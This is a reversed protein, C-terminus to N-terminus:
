LANQPPAASCAQFPEASQGGGGILVEAVHRQGTAQLAKLFRQYNAYSTRVLIDVLENNMDAPTAQSRVHDYQEYGLVDAALLNGCLEAPDMLRVLQPLNTYLRSREEDTLPRGDVDSEADVDHTEFLRYLEFEAPGNEAYCGRPMRALIRTADEDPVDSM